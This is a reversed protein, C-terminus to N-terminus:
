NGFLEFLYFILKCFEQVVNFDVSTELKPPKSNHGRTMDKHGQFTLPTVRTPPAHQFWNFAVLSLRQEKSSRYDNYNIIFLFM